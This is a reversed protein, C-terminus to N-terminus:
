GSVAGDAHTKGSIRNSQLADGIMPLGGALREEDEVFAGFVGIFAENEGPKRFAIGQQQHALADAIREDSMAFLFFGLSPVGKRSHQHGDHLSFRDGIAIGLGMKEAAHDLKYALFTQLIEGSSQQQRKRRAAQREASASQDLHQLRRFLNDKPAM